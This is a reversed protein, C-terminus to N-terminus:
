VVMVVVMVMMGNDCGVDDGDYDNSGNGNGGCNGDYIRVMKGGNRASGLVQCM